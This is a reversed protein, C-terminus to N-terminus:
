RGGTVRHLSRVSASVGLSDLAAALLGTLQRRPGARRHRFLDPLWERLRCPSLEALSSRGATGASDTGQDAGPTVGRAHSPDEPGVLREQAGTTCVALNVRLTLPPPPAGRTLRTM